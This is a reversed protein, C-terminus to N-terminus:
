MRKAVAVTVAGFRSAPGRVYGAQELARAVEEPLVAPVPPSVVLWVRRPREGLLDRIAVVAAEVSRVEDRFDVYLQLERAPPVYYHHVLRRMGQPAYVVADGPEVLRGLHAAALDYRFPNYRVDRWAADSGVAAYGLVVSFALGQALWRAGRGGSWVDEVAAALLMAVFPQLYLVHYTYAAVKGLAWSLVAVVLLPLGWSMLCLRAAERSVRSARVAGAAVLLAPLLGLTLHVAGV